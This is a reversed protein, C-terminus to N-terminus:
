KERAQRLVEKTIDLTIGNTMALSEAKKMHSETFEKGRGHDAWVTGGSDRDVVVILGKEMAVAGIIELLDESIPRTLEVNKQAALGGVGFVSEAFEEYRQNLAQFDREMEALEDSSVKGRSQDLVEKQKYVEDRLSRAEQEWSEVHQDLIEQAQVTGPYEDFVKQYNISAYQSFTTTPACGSSIMNPLVLLFVAGALEGATRGTRQSSRRRRAM